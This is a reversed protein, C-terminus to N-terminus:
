QDPENADAPTVHATASDSLTVSETVSVGQTAEAKAKVAQAILKHVYERTYGSRRAAESVSMGAEIAALTAAKLQERLPRMREELRTFERSIADLAKSEPTEEVRRHSRPVHRITDCSTDRVRIVSDTSLGSAAQVQVTM